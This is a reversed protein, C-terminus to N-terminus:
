HKSRKPADTRGRRSVGRFNEVGTNEVGANEAGGNTREDTIEKFTRLEIKM